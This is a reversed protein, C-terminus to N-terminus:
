GSPRCPATPGESAHLAPSNMVALCLEAQWSGAMAALREM